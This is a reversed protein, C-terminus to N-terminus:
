DALQDIQGKAFVNVIKITDNAADIIDSEVFMPEDYKGGHSFDNVLISNIEIELEEILSRLFESFNDINPQCFRWISELVSRISNATTHDPIKRGHSVDYVDQLQLLHPTAFGTQCKLSHKTEGAVLQFM